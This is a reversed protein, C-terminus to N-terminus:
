ETKYRFCLPRWRAFKVSKEQGQFRGVEEQFRGVKVVMQCVKFVKGLALEGPFRGVKGRFWKGCGHPSLFTCKLSFPPTPQHGNQKLIKPASSEIM